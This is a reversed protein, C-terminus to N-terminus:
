GLWANWPIRSLILAYGIAYFLLTTKFRYKNDTMRKAKSYGVTIAIIAIINVSIHEVVYLSTSPDKMASSFDKLAEQVIPSIFYLVLGIVLQLHALALVMLALKKDAETYEKKGILSLTYKIFFVIGIAFFLLPLKSHLNQLSEYM